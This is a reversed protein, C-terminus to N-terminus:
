DSLKESAPAKRVDVSIKGIRPLSRNVPLDWIDLQLISFFDSKEGAWGQRALVRRKGPLTRADNLGEVYGFPVGRVKVRQPRASRDKQADQM